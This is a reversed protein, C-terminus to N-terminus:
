RDGDGSGKKKGTVSKIVNVIAPLNEVLRVLWKPM